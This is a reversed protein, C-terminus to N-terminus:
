TLEKVLDRVQMSIEDPYHRRMRDYNAKGYMQRLVVDSVIFYSMAGLVPYIRTLADTSSLARKGAIERTIEILSDLFPKLYWSHVESARRESDLLERVIIRTEHPAERSLEYVSLLAAHLQQVPAEHETRATEVCGLMRESIRSLVEGYLKEKRGFYHLLAQKTLGLEDAIDALSAGYFGRAAFLKTASDLLQERTDDQRSANM